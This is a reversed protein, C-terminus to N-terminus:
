AFFDEEESKNAVGGQSMQAQLDHIKKENLGITIAIVVALIAIVIAPLNLYKSLLFGVFLWGINDGSVLMKMLVAMGVAGLMGSAVTLGNVVSQPLSNMAATVADSGLYICLFIIIARTAYSVFWSSLILRTLGKANGTECVKNYSPAFINSLMIWCISLSNFALGVPVALTIAEETSLGSTIAFTVSMVTASVPEASTAGGINVAGMYIAELAAGIIIGTEMDGLLLGTVTGVVIPREIMCQGLLWNGGYCIFYALTALIAVMLNSM